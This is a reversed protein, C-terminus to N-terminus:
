RTTTCSVNNGVKYCDTQIPRNSSRAAAARQFANASRQASEEYKGSLASFKEALQYRATAESMTGQKVQEALFNAYAVYERRLANGRIRPDESAARNICEAMAVFGANQQECTHQVTTM